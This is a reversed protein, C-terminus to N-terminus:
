LAVKKLRLSNTIVSVSSLAMAIGAYVPNLMSGTIPYFLGAALPIGIINYAFAWFLNQKIINMTKKSLIITKEIKLIDGKLITIDASDIAIDAGTSMAIGVDAQALAPADNIGDGVMAVKEGQVQLQKVIEVKQHPLVDSYIDAINTQSAVKEVVAQSDGSVIVTKIHQQQLLQIAHKAEAKPVDALEIKGIVTKGKAVYITTNNTAQHSLSTPINIKQQKMLQNSGILYWTNNIKGKIGFGDLATFQSVALLDGKYKKIIASALPHTSNEELSAAIQLLQSSSTSTNTEIHTVTPKGTTLTGTKDLIITSIRELKELSEANKILIGMQAGRGVGVIIGTPTALGLACPCAIVLISIMGTLGLSFAQSAGLFYSGITIWLLFTALALVLVIPVFISAIKDALQEIPAKSSQANEVLHIIQSLMTDGGVKTAKMTIAGQRNITGGIVNDNLTKDVPIPEGTILSEDVSTQGQKVIGDVPIKEGPKVVINDGIKVQDIPIEVIKGNKVINATKSQIEYLKQIASATKRKSQTELYKGFLIFGIVVTTVDFYLVQPLNYQSILDPFLLAFVSYLYAVSTGIGVLTDMNAYRTKIFRPIAQLFQKGFGFLNISAVILLLMGHANDGGPFSFHAGTKKLGMEIIMSFFTILALVFPIFSFKESDASEEHHHRHAPQNVKLSYGYPQIISNMYTLSPQQDATIQATETALNVAISSLQGTKKLKKEIVGACSACHMGSVKYITTKAM